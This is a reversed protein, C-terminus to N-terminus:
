PGARTAEPFALGWALQEPAERSEEGTSAPAYSWTHLRHRFRLIGRWHQCPDQPEEPTELPSDTRTEIPAHVHTKRGLQLLLTVRGKAHILSELSERLAKRRPNGVLSEWSAKGCPQGLHWRPPLQDEADFDLCQLFFLNRQFPILCRLAEQFPSVVRSNREGKRHLTGGRSIRRSHRFNKGSWVPFPDRMELQSASVPSRQFHAPGEHKRELPSPYTPSSKLQLM